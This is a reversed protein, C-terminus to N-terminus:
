LIDRLVPVLPQTNKLIIKTLWEDNLQKSWTNNLLSLVKMSGHMLYANISMCKINKRTRNYKM